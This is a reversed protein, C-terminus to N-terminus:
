IVVLEGAYDTGLGVVTGERVPPFWPQDATSRISVVDGVALERRGDWAYAYEAGGYRFRVRVLQHGVDDTMRVVPVLMPEGCACRRRSRRAARPVPHATASISLGITAPGGTALDDAGPERAPGALCGHALVRKIHRCRTRGLEFGTCTCALAESIVDNAYVLYVANVSFVQWWQPCWAMERGNQEM